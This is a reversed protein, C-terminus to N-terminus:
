PRSLIATAQRNPPEDLLSPHKLIPGQQGDSLLPVQVGCSRPVYSPLPATSGGQLFGRIKHTTGLDMYTQDLLGVDKEGQFM